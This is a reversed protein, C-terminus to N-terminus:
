RCTSWCGPASRAGWARGRVATAARGAPVARVARRAAAGSLAQGRHGPRDACRGLRGQRAVLADARRGGAGGRVPGLQRDRDAGARPVARRVPRGVPAAQHHAGRVVGARGRLGDAHRLQGGLVDARQARASGHPTLWSAVEMFLGTLVPYELYHLGASGSTGMPIKDFYPVLDTAFGRQAYLHPIDSYCAHIYQPDGPKFWAGSYCPVKQVMGLAFMGIVVLVMVRLPNWWHHGAARARRGAPGGILESGSAALPDEDTPRVPLERRDDEERDRVSTM